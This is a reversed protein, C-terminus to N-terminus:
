KRLYLALHESKIWGPPFPTQDNSLLALAMRVKTRVAASNEWQLGSIAVIAEDRTEPYLRGTITLSVIAWSRTFVSKDHLMEVLASFIDGVTREDAVIYGLIMAIHWRVMAVNDSRGYHILDHLHGRVLDPRSRCIKELADATRGRIVEDKESLGAYLDDYLEDNSLVLAVVEDSLGDSRLDGGSLIGLLQNM